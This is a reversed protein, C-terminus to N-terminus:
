QFEIQITANTNTKEEESTGSEETLENVEDVIGGVEDLTDSFSSETGAEQELSTDGIVLQALGPSEDEKLIKEQQEKPVAVPPTPTENGDSKSAMGQPVEIEIDPAVANALAALGELTLLGTSGGSVGLVFGTGRVSVIANVTRVRFRSRRNRRKGIKFHAKGTFLSIESDQQTVADMKFYSRAYLVVEESKGEVKIIARSQKGSHIEDNEHLPIEVGSERYVMATGEHIVKIYGKILSVTGKQAPFAVGTAMFYILIFWLFGTTKM